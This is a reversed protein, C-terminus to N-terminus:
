EEQYPKAQIEFLEEYLGGKEMLAKHTGREIIKGRDLVIIESCFICSALRHSIFIMTRDQAFRYLQEYLAIESNSDLSATPEDLILIDSNRYVARAIAVQQEQGGSLMVASENVERNLLTEGKQPLSDLLKKLNFVEMIGDMSKTKRKDFTINEQVSIGYINYDQFVCSFLTRYSEFGIKQIDIGDVYINGREPRYLGLILKILTTKGAGNRGVISYSKGKEITLNLGEFTYGDAGQYKYWVDVIEIKEKFTLTKLLETNVKNEKIETLFKIEEVYRNETSIAIFSALVKSVTESLAITASSYLVFENVSLSDHYTMYAMWSYVVIYEIGNAIYTWGITKVSKVAANMWLACLKEAYAEVKDSVFDYLGWIRIDKAFRNESLVDRAYYLNKEIENGKHNREYVYKLRVAEGVANVLVTLVILILIACPLKRVIYIMGAITIIGSLIDTLNNYILLISKRNICKRAFEVKELYTKTEIKEYAIKMVSDSLETNLSINIREQLINKRQNIFVLLLENLLVGVCLCFVLIEGRQYQGNTIERIIAQPIIILVFSIGIKRFIDGWFLFLNTFNDNKIQKICFTIIKLLSKTNM